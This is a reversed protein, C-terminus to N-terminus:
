RTGGDKKGKPLKLKRKKRYYYKEDICNTVATVVNTLERNSPNGILGDMWVKEITENIDHELEEKSM